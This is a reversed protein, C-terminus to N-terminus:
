FFYSREFNNKRSSNKTSYIFNKARIIDMLIFLVGLSDSTCDFHFLTLHVHIIKLFAYMSLINSDYNDHVTWIMFLNYWMNDIFLLMDAMYSYMCNNDSFNLLRVSSRVHVYSCQRSQEEKKRIAEVFENKYRIWTIM